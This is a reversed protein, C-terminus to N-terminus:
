RLGPSAFSIDVEVMRETDPQKLIQLRLVWYDEIAHLVRGIPMESSMQKYTVRERYSSNLLKGWESIDKIKGARTTQLGFFGSDYGEFMYTDVRTVRSGSHVVLGVTRWEDGALVKRAEDLERQVQERGGSVRSTALEPYQKLMKEEWDLIEGMYDKIEKESGYKLILRYYKEVLEQLVLSGYYIERRNDVGIGPLKADVIRKLESQTHDFAKTWGTYGDESMRALYVYDTRGNVTPPDAVVVRELNLTVTGLVVLATWLIEYRVWCLKPKIYRMIMTVMMGVLWILAVLGYLRALTLGHLSQYLWVRRFISVVFVAFELGLITQLKILWKAGQGEKSKGVLLAAWAVGWVLAAVQLLDGFGKKVYDSYTAVGYKSLDTEKAVTVFVYPWQIILFSGLVVVVMALVVSMERNWGRTLFGLPSRYGRWALKLLPLMAILIMASLILRMPLQRLFEESVMNKIFNAFIPDAHSLLSVLLAVVPLGIIGGTLVSKIWAPRTTVKKKVLGTQSKAWEGNWFSGIVRRVGRLYEWAMWTPTLILELLGGIGAGKVYDYTAIVWTVGFLLILIELKESANVLQMLIVILGTVLGSMWGVVGIPQGSKRYTMVTWGWWGLLMLGVGFSGVPQFMFLNLFLVLWLLQV